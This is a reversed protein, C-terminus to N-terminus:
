RRAAMLIVAKADKSLEKVQELETYIDDLIGTLKHEKLVLTLQDWKDM